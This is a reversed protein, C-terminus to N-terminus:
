AKRSTKGPHNPHVTAVPKLNQCRNKLTCDKQGFSLLLAHSICSRPFRTIFTSVASGFAVAFRNQDSGNLHLFAVGM